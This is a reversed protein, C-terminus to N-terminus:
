FIPLIIKKGSKLFDYMDKFGLWSFTSFARSPETSFFPADEILLGRVTDPALAAVMTALLGGSSHGSIFVPAKIINHIFWIFDQSNELVSYKAPNKSSGGHGYCDVAYVHYRKSLEGFVKAYDEWSVQQGHILLLPPGNKPGEGYNILSGDPLTVQKEIMGAQRIYKLNAKDYHLNRYAFWGASVLIVAILILIVLMMTRKM